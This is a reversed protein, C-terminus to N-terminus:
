LFDWSLFKFMKLVFLAKLIFYFANKVMELPSETAVKSFVDINRTLPYPSLKKINVQYNTASLTNCSALFVLGFINQYKM